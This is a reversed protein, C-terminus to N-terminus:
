TFTISIIFIGYKYIYFDNPYFMSLYVSVAHADQYTNLNNRVKWDRYGESAMVQMITKSGKIFQCVDEKTPLTDKQFLYGFMKKLQEPKGDECSFDILVDLPLYRFSTLLNDSKGFIARIWDNVSKYEKDINEKFHKFAEWKYSELDSIRKWDKYYTQIYSDLNIM